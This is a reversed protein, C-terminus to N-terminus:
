AALAPKGRALDEGRPRRNEGPRLVGAAIHVGAEDVRCLEIPVVTDLDSPMVAGTMIRVAHGPPVPREFPTGAYVTDPLAQLVTSADAVLDAGRFAYGDMASNDHAPVDIPSMVPEALVRGLAQGLPVSASEDIPQLSALVRARALEVPLEHGAALPSPGLEPM